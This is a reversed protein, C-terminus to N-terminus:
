TADGSRSVRTRALSRKRIRPGRKPRPADEFMCVSTQWAWVKARGKPVSRWDSVYVLGEAHLARLRAGVNALTCGTVEAIETATQPKKMLMSILEAILEVPSRRHRIPVHRASVSRSVPVSCHEPERVRALREQETTGIEPVNTPSSRFM